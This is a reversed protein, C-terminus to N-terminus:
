VELDNGFDRGSTKNTPSLPQPTYSTSQHHGLASGGTGENPDKIFQMNLQSLLNSRRDEVCMKFITFESLAM